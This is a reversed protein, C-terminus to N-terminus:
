PITFAKQLQGNQDYGITKTEFYNIMMSRDKGLSNTLILQYIDEWTIRIFKRKPNEKIHIRFTSEIDKERESLVLNVLFFDLGLQNAMWTGLLWFRMLEYKKETIAITDYTSKFVTSFWKDGGSEYKKHNHEDSPKTKNGATLKAEIFFLAKSTRIIIDPESSRKIEEGFEERARDLVSWRSKEKQSYSWYIVESSDGHNTTVLRLFSPILDHKELYRFVNWSIADESRERTLRRSERKVKKINDLLIKDESDKWLLNDYADEYEFTSPSVDGFKNLVEAAYEADPLTPKAPPDPKVKAEAIDLGKIDSEIIITDEFFGIIDERSANEIVLKDIPSSASLVNGLLADIADRELREYVKEFLAVNTLKYCAIIMRFRNNPTKSLYTSLYKALQTLFSNDGLSIGTAKVEMWYEQREGKKTLISDAFTGEVDSGAILYYDKAGLYMLVRKKYAESSVTLSERVKGLRWLPM